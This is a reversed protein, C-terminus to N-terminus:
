PGREGSRKEICYEVAELAQNGKDFLMTQDIRDLQESRSVYFPVTKQHEIIFFNMWMVKRFVSDLDYGKCNEIIKDLYSNYASVVYVPLEPNRLELDGLYSEAVKFDNAELANFFYTELEKKTKTNREESGLDYEPREEEEELAEELSSPKLFFPHSTLNKPTIEKKEPTIEKLKNKSYDREKLTKEEKKSEPINNKRTPLVEDAPLEPAYEPEEEYFEETESEEYVADHSVYAFLGLSAAIGVAGIIGKYRKM